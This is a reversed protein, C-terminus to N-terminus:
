NCISSGGSSTFPVLDFVGDQGATGTYTFSIDPQVTATWSTSWSYDSDNDIENCLNTVYDSIVPDTSPICEPNILLIYNSVVIANSSDLLATM